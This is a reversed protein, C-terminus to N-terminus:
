ELLIYHILNRVLDQQQLKLDAREKSIKAAEKQFSDEMQTLRDEVGEDMQNHKSVHQNRFEKSVHQYGLRAERKVSKSAGHAVDAQVHLIACVAQIVEKM